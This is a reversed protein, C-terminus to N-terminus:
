IILNNLSNKKKVILNIGKLLSLVSSMVIDEHTASAKVVHKSEIDMIEISTHGLSETGGTIADIQYNLLKIKSMPKFCQIIAKVSADVPGVGVSSAVKEVINGNDYIKLRVTSTPTVSGTLVTLEELKVFQDEEPLEEFVDKVIAYFDEESVEHGKDGFTKIHEMINSFQEETAYIGLDELKAKLAHGGTHKGLKISHQIIEQVNDSRKIGILEPTIPEYARAHQIMAHAHIGSEHAFANQGILPKLRGVIIKGGCLSEVLKATPFILKTNIQMPIQYLAYLSMATEEFSANGAREGLGLITTQAESAGNEFGAVTNAVALGFDNHCHVAIRVNKPLAEYNKRVIYGFATPSITGVTDPINIRTAGSEIAVQNVKILFDLDSRTADEASFEITSYHDKAYTVLEKVNEIIEERTMKLKERMHLESTAIFLHISDMDAEVVKDIDIKKIRALGIVVSDLGLKAIEKCAEFDGQSIVPFGAEIVDIGLANLSQAISVKEKLTFSIGPTQEGDRLTTDFFYAQNPLILKGRIKEMMDSVMIDNKEKM